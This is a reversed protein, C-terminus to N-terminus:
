GGKLDTFRGRVVLEDGQLHGWGRLADEIKKAWGELTLSWNGIEVAGGTDFVGLDGVDLETYGSSIRIKFVGHNKSQFKWVEPAYSGSTKEVKVNVIGRVVEGVNPARRKLDIKM